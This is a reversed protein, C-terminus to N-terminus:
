LHQRCNHKLNLIKEANNATQSITTPAPALPTVGLIYINKKTIWLKKHTHATSQLGNV